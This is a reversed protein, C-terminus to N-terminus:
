SFSLSPSKLVAMNTRPFERDVIDLYSNVNQYVHDRNLQDRRASREAEARLIGMGSSRLDAVALWKGSEVKVYMSRGDAGAQMDGATTCHAPTTPKADARWKNDLMMCTPKRLFEPKVSNIDRVAKVMPKGAHVLQQMIDFSTALVYVSQMWRKWYEDPISMANVLVRACRIVNEPEGMQADSTTPPQQTDSM